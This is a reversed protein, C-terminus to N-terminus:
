TMLDLNALLTFGRPNQTRTEKGLRRFFGAMAALAKDIYRIPEKRGDVITCLVVFNWIGLAATESRKLGREYIQPM